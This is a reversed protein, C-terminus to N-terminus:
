WRTELIPWAERFGDADVPRMKARDPDQRELEAEVLPAIDVGNVRVNRLDGDIDINWIDVGRLRSDFIAGGRMDGNRVLVRRLERGALDHVQREVVDCLRFPTWAKTRRLPGHRDQRYTRERARARARVRVGGRTTIYDTARLPSRHECELAWRSLS